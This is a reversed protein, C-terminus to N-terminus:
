KNLDNQNVLHLYIGFPFFLENNIYMRGYEDFTVKRQMKNIKKFTYTDINVTDDIKSELFAEIIYFQNNKLNLSNINIPITFFSSNIVEKKTEYVIKNNDKIRTKLIWDTLKYNGRNTDIKYVINVIDYVEDRDNNIVIKLLDNIRYISIDDIFVDGSAGEQELTYAGFLYRDFDGSPKKINGSKLCAKKWDNTGNFYSSYYHEYLNTFNKNEIYFRFGSGTINKLKFNVCIEYKFDKEVQITQTNIIRKNSEKWHLSNNGSYSEHSIDSTPNLIWDKLKNNSDFEEFSPNKIINKCNINIILISLVFIM